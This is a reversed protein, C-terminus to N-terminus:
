RGASNLCIRNFLLAIAGSSFLAAVAGDETMVTRDYLVTVEGAEVVVGVPLGFDEPVGVSFFPMEVPVLAAM